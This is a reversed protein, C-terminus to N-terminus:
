AAAIETRVTQEYLALYEDAMREANYMQRARHYALNAYRVRLERNHSIDRIARALDQADNYRFYFATDGWLEHFSPIDNAVIVCRSLAAELPALGFPEYRSTAAYAAARGYLHRLQGESKPGEFSVNQLTASREDGRYATDPHRESGVIVVPAAQDYQTLLSVNKGADWLRGVSIVFDEKTVHPNFLNPNRGNYIVQTQEPSTYYARICDMMWHTPAVVVDAGALGRTVADRYWRIWRNERPEEGHVAVWWSVVDSHAVVIKPVSTRLVGYAYQNLHIVDPKVEDIVAALYESSAAIDDEVDQMWELRFATPRFDVGRLGDMWDTQAATPIDGFSVLTVQVGRHALGTVLERAYTWVGGVTDTTILAHM